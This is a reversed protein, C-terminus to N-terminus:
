RKRKNVRADPKRTNITKPNPRRPTKTNITKPNPRSRPTKPIPKNMAQTSTKPSNDSSGTGPKLHKYVNSYDSDPADYRNDQDGTLGTLGSPRDVRTVKLDGGPTTIKPLKPIGPRPPLENTYTNRKVDMEKPKYNQLTKTAQQTAEINARHKRQEKGDLTWRKSRSNKKKPKKTPLPPPTKKDQIQLPKNTERRQLKLRKKRLEKRRELRRKRKLRRRKRSM